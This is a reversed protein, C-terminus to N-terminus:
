CNHKKKLKLAKAAIDEHNWERSRKYASEIASCVPQGDPGCVPYGLNSPQLFCKSGFKQYMTKREGRSHPQINKWSLAKVPAQKQVTKKRLVQKPKTSNISKNDGNKVYVRSGSPLIYHLGGRPGVILKKSPM